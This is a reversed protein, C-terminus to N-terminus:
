LDGSPSVVRSSSAEGLSVSTLSSAWVRANRASRQFNRAKSLKLKSLVRKLDIVHLVHGLLQRSEGFVSMNLHPVYAAWLAVARSVIGPFFYLLARLLVFAVSLVLYPETGFMEKLSTGNWPIFIEQTKEVYSNESETMDMIPYLGTTKKYFKVLSHLDKHGNYRLMETQNVILISPLSHIGYRSFVSMLILQRALKQPVNPALSAYPKPESPCESSSPRTASQEVMVHKIQPFMSSLTTFVQRARSSFPCWAAHFLVATLGDKQSSDLVKDLSEGDMEIPFSPMSIPLSCQFKLDHLFSPSQRRRCTSESAYPNSYSSVYSFTSFEYVLVVVVVLVYRMPLVEM